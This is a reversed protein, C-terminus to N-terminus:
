VDDLLGKFNISLSYELEKIVHAQFKKYAAIVQLGQSTLQTSGGAAGGRKRIILDIGLCSEAKALDSWAKRYSIGLNAAAKRLSGTAVIETLLRVKGDGFVGPADASYLWIRCNAKLKNMCGNHKAM